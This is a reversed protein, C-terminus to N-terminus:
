ADPFRADVRALGRRVYEDGDIDGRELATLDAIDDRNPAWGDLVHSAINNHVNWKQEITLGAFLDPYRVAYSPEATM